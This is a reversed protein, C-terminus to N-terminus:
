TVLKARNNATLKSGIM